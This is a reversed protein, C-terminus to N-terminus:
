AVIRWTAIACVLWISIVMGAAVKSVPIKSAANAYELHRAYVPDPIM